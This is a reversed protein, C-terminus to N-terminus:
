PVIENALKIVDASFKEHFKNVILNSLETLMQNPRTVLQSLDAYFIDQDFNKSLLMHHLRTAREFHDFQIRQERSCEAMSNLIADRNEKINKLLNDMEKKQSKSEWVSYVVGGGGILAGLAIFSTAITLILSNASDVDAVEEILDDLEERITDIKDKVGEDSTALEIKALSDKISVMTSNLSSAQNSHVTRAGVQEKEEDSVCPLSLFLSAIIAFRYM